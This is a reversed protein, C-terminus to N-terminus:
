ASPWGLFMAELTTSSTAPDWTSRGVDRATEAVKRGGVKWGGGARCSAPCASSGGNELTRVHLSLMLRDTFKGSRNKGEVCMTETFM